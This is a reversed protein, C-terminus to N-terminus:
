EISKQYQIGLQTISVTRVEEIMLATNYMWYGTGRMTDPM